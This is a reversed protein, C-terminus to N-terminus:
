KKLALLHMKADRMLEHELLNTVRRYFNETIKNEAYDKIPIYFGCSLSLAITLIIILNKM